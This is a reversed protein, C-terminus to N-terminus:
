ALRKRETRSGTRNWDKHFFPESRQKEFNDEVISINGQQLFSAASLKQRSSTPGTLTLSSRHEVISFIFGESNVMLTQRIHDFLLYLRQCQAVADVCLHHCVPSCCSMSITYRGYPVPTLSCLCQAWKTTKECLCLSMVFVILSTFCRDSDNQILM